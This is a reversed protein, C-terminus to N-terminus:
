GRVGDFMIGLEERTIKVERKSTTSHPESVLGQQELIDVIRAARPYGVGLRRQLSSVTGFGKELFFELSERIRPDSELSLDNKTKDFYQDEILYKPRGQLRVMDVVRDIEEDSIYSCQVRRLKSGSQSLLLDGYGLLTQAGNEDLIVRSDNAQAVTFAIRSPINSKITGTIVDM